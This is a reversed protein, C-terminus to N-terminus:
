YAWDANEIAIVIQRWMDASAANGSAELEAIM